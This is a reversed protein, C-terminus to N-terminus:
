IGGKSNIDAVAKQAGLWFQDGFSAYSGTFPGAIGIRITQDGAFVVNASFLIFTILIKVLKHM